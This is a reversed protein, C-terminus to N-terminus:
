KFSIDDEIIKMANIVEDPAVYLEITGFHYSTDQKDVLVPNLHHDELVAKVIEARYMMHTTYVKQWKSNM